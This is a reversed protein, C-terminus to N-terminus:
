KRLPWFDFDGESEEERKRRIDSFAKDDEEPDYSAFFDDNYLKSPADNEPPIFSVKEEEEERNKKKSLDFKPPAPLKEEAFSLISRRGTNREPNETQRDGTIRDFLGKKRRVSNESSSKRSVSVENFSAYSDLVDDSVTLKKNGDNEEEPPDNETGTILSFDIREPTEDYVPVETIVPCEDEQPDEASAEDTEESYEKAESEESDTQEEEEKDEYIEKYPDGSATNKFRSALNEPLHIRDRLSTAAVMPVAFFSVCIWFIQLIVALWGSIGSKAGAITLILGFVAGAVTGAECFTKAVRKLKDLKIASSMTRIFSSFSDGFVIGTEESDTVTNKQAAFKEATSKKIIRLSNEPLGLLIEGFEETIGPDKISMLINAGHRALESLSDAAKEDCSYKVSFVAAFHGEIALFLPKANEELVFPVTNERPLEVNHNVLLEKTGLLVKCDSIWASFGLKDEFVLHEVEPFRDELGGSFGSFAKKLIGGAKDTLVAACFQAQKENVNSASSAGVVEATFVDEADIIIDDICCFNHADSFSEVFSSKVSLLSNEHSLVYGTFVLCSIPFSFAATATLCGLAYVISKSAILGVICSVLSLLMSFAIIRSSAQGAFASKASRKLFGSVFRTKGAYVVNTETDSKEKLLSTVLNEDSVKRLYCKDSTAAVAKFCHRTSDYYFVKSLLVPVCLLVAAGSFLHYDSECKLVTFFSAINQCLAGAYMFLLASDTKPRIKLVSFIGKKLDDAMLIGAAILIILNIINYTLVSGGFLKFFGNNMAASVSAATNLIILILGLLGVILVKFIVSKRVNILKSFIEKRRAPDTYEEEGVPVFDTDLHSYKEAFDKLFAPLKKEDKRVSFSKDETEGTAVAQKTWFRFNKIRKERVESLEKVLEEDEAAETIAEESENFGEMTLQDEDTDAGDSSKALERLLDGKANITKTEGSLVNLEESKHNAGNVSPIVKTKEQIANLFSQQLDEKEQVPEEKKEKAPIFKPTDAEPAHNETYTNIKGTYGTHARKKPIGPLLRDTYKEIHTTEESSDNKVSIFQSRNTKIFRESPIADTNEENNEPVQLVTEEKVTQTATENKINEYAEKNETNVSNGAVSIIDENESLGDAESNKSKNFQKLFNNYESM